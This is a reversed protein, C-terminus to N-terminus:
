LVWVPMRSTRWCWGRNSGSADTFTLLGVGLALFGVISFRSM